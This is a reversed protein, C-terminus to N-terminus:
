HRVIMLSLCPKLTELVERLREAMEADVEALTDLAGSGDAQGVNYAVQALRRLSAPEERPIRLVQKLFHAAERVCVPQAADDELARLRELDEDTGPKEDVWSADAADDLKNKLPQWTDLGNKVREGNSWVSLGLQYADELTHTCSM